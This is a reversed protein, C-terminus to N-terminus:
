CPPSSIARSILAASRKTAKFSWAVPTMTNSPKPWNMGVSPPRERARLSRTAAVGTAVAAHDDLPTAGEHRGVRLYSLFAEVGQPDASGHSDIM